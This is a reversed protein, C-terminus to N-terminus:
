TLERYCLAMFLGVAIILSPWLMAGVRQPFLGRLTLWRVAGALLGVGGLVAHQVNILTTLEDAVGLSAHAHGLLLFSGLMMVVPLAPGMPRQEPPRMRDRWGLWVMVLLIAAGLQHEIVTTDSLAERFTVRRLLWVEPDAFASVFGAFPVLLFPWLRTAIRGGPGGISQLLWFVGMLTVFVGSWKHMFESYRLDNTTREAEDIFTAPDVFEASPLRPSWVAALQAPTLRATGDEGPPSISGLIGAVAIMLVGCTVELELMRGFQRLVTGADRADGSQKAGELAHRLRCRRSAPIGAQAATSSQAVSGQPSLGPRLSPSAPPATLRKLAPGIVRFNVAGACLVGLLLVLKVSLTLGYASAVIEAPAGLYRVMADVGSVAITAFAALAIPSFRGVIEAVLRVAARDTVSELQRRLLFLHALVGMWVGVGAIHVIQAAIALHRDVPQAAAHSVLSTVVVAVGALLGTAWWRVPEPAPVAFAVALLLAARALALRGVTTQTAFRWALEADVGGFVSQQRLEATQVFLDALTALGAALAGRFVWRVAQAELAAALGDREPAPGAGRCAPRILGLVLVPGGLALVLGILQLAHLTSHEM